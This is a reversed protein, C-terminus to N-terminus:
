RRVTGLVVYSGNNEEHNHRTMKVTKPGCRQELPLFNLEPDLEEMIDEEKAPLLIGVNHINLFGCLIIM